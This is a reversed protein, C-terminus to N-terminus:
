YATANTLEMLIKNADKDRNCEVNLEPNHERILQRELQHAAKKGRVVTMLAITFAEEGYTRIANQLPYARNEVLAHYLHRQWRAKVSKLFARGICVTIGIYREGTIKCTIQYVAHNRDIRRKRAM